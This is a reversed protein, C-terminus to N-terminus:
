RKRRTPARQAPAPCVLGIRFYLWADDNPPNHANYFEFAYNGSWAFHILFLEGTVENRLVAMPPGYGANGYVSRGDPLAMWRFADERMWQMSVLRLLSFPSAAEKPLNEHLHHGAFLFGSM